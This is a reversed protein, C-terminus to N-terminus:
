RLLTRRTRANTKHAQEWLRVGGRFALSNDGLKVGAPPKGIRKAGGGGLVVYDVQFAAKLVHVAAKAHRAWRRMGLRKRGVKGLYDAFTRNGRYWLDGLELPHVVGELILTSGLGTGLGLFLMRGGEYGGLAQMAADNIIKIPRRFARKFDFGHWGRGLNPADEKPIGNVVVGPYGISVVDYKWDAITKQVAAFM